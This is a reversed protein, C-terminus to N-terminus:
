WQQKSYSHNIRLRLEAVEDSRIVGEKEMERVVGRVVDEDRKKSAILSKLFWFVMVPARKRKGLNGLILGTLTFSTLVVQSALWVVEGGWEDLSDSNFMLSSLIKSLKELNEGDEPPYSPLTFLFVLLHLHSLLSFTSLGTYLRKVILPLFVNLLNKTTEGPVMSLSEVILSTHDKASRQEEEGEPDDRNVQTLLISLYDEESLSGKIFMAQLISFFKRIGRDRSISLGLHSLQQPCVLETPLTFVLELFGNLQDEHVKVKGGRGGKKM